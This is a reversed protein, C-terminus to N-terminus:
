GITLEFSFPSNQSGAVITHEGPDLIVKTDPLNAGIPQGDVITGLRSGRDLILVQGGTQNISFHNRSVNFPAGDELHLDNYSLVDTYLDHSERGIMFPFKTIVMKQGKLARKAEESLGALVVRIPKEVPAEEPVPEARSVVLENMQRLREFLVKMIPMLVAPDKSFCENFKERDFVDLEVDELATVTASRPRDEFLGQDGFIGDKGIEALVVKKGDKRKSVEVRGSRIIYASTGYSEEEIIVDGKKFRLVDIM